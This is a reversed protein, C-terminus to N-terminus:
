TVKFSTASTATGGPTTVKIKGTTAGHPVKVVIETPHASSITAPTGNFTVKTAGALHTGTVTVSTGVPGSAPSFKIITPASTSASLVLTQGPVSLSVEYTGAAQCTSANPCSVGSLSDEAPGPDPTPPANWSLGNWSETLDSESAGQEGAAVCNSASFCSVGLLENFRKSPNLSSVAKWATGNWVETLTHTGSGAGQRGVALCSSASACSVGDLIDFSSSPNPSSAQKWTSGNWSEVLTRM